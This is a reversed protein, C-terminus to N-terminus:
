LDQGQSLTAGLSNMLEAFSPFSTNIHTGDDVTIPNQAIAGLVLFSMAIRHDMATEVRGGGQVAGGDIVLTSEGEELRVSNEALGKAMMALRDSEKVRLEELGSMQTKGAACAAAVSLIPIEDIMDPVREAPVEIGSLAGNYRVHIDAIPEGAIVRENEFTLDAGMDKLTHFLGIRTPNMGVEELTIDSDPILLAAVMPFAASSPDAPVTIDCPTLEQQGQVRVAWTGDELQETEVEVGFGRLMNETHDRTKKSEIVTTTGRANLGALLISSKVQASAVPTKYDLQMTDKAGSVTLPMRGGDRALFQAGMMSLPDIVRKMPRKVLSEDGTFTATIPHGAVLGMLLRAATGSNGMDIIDSPAMLSGLGAGWIHWTGDDGREIKAGLQRMAAATALVDEGELLGRVKSEGIALSALMLARHSISKDGPVRVRGSLPKAKRSIMPMMTMLFVPFLMM